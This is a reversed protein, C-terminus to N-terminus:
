MSLLLFNYSWKYIFSSYFMKYFNGTHPSQWYNRHRSCWCFGINLICLFAFIFSCITVTVYFPTFDGYEHKVFYPNKLYDEREDLISMKYIKSQSEESFVFIIKGEISLSVGFNKFDIILFNISFFLCINKIM